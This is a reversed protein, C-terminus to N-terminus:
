ELGLQQNIQDMQQRMSGIVAVLQDTNVGSLATAPASGATGPAPNLPGRVMGSGSLKAVTEGLALGLEDRTVVEQLVPKLQERTVASARLQQLTQLFPTLEDRTPRQDIGYRLDQIVRGTDQVSNIHDRRLRSTSLRGGFFGGAGGVVLAVAGSLLYTLM